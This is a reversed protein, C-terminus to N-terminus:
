TRFHVVPWDATKNVVTLEFSGLNYKKYQNGPQDNTESVKTFDQDEARAQLLRFIESKSSTLLAKDLKGKNLFFNM